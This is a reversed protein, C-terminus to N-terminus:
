GTNATLHPSIQGCTFSVLDYEDLKAWWYLLYTQGPHLLFRSRDDNGNYLEIDFNGWDAADDNKSMCGQGSEEYNVIMKKLIPRINSVIDNAKSPTMTYDGKECLIPLVYDSHLSPYATTFPIVYEENYENMIKEYFTHDRETSNRSDLQQRNMSEQSLRYVDIVEDSVM